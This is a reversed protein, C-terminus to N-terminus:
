VDQHPVQLSAPPPTHKPPGPSSCPLAPCSPRLTLLTSSCTTLPAVALRPVSLLASMTYACACPTGPVDMRATLPLPRLTGRARQTSGEGPHTCTTSGCATATPATSAVSAASPRCDACCSVRLLTPQTCSSAASLRNCLQTLLELLVLGHLLCVCCQMWWGSVNHLDYSCSCPFCLSLLCGCLGTLKSHM